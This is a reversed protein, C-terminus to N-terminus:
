EKYINEAKQQKTPGLYKDLWGLSEKILENGPIFHDTEYLVLKKDKSPTGLLDFMPKVSADYNYHMDYKGNLMLTPIKNRVVFNKQSLEPVETNPGLMGHLCSILAKVREEIAPMASAWLGGWSAAFIAIKNTDIDARTELYDVSRKFDIMFNNFGALTNSTKTEVDKERELYGYFVIYMLARGDKLFFDLGGGPNKMFNEGSRSSFWDIGPFIVVTQYPPEANKPLWLYIVMRKSDYVTNFSIKELTCDKFSNDTREIRADFPSKEYKFQNQLIKFAEDSITEDAYFSHTSSNDFIIPEFCYAPIKEKEIYKVCRFGNKESRDLTNVLNIMRYQYFPDNWAGGFTAHSVSNGNFCWERVNGAMDYTGFANMGKYFGVKAPGKGSFNSKTMLYSDFYELGRAQGWHHITPLEKGAFEAYAAAEYWSIGSVPYDEEGNPYDGAQWTSPGPRGTKDTFMAIAEDWALTKNDKEITHKWYRKDQYGGAAIFKKYEANTVEFKDLYYNGTSDNGIIKKFIMEFPLSGTPNLSNFNLLIATAPVMGTPVTGKKHLKRYFNSVTSHVAIITDYGEKVMIYKCVTLTPLKVSDIPTIGMFRWNETTDNYSKFYVNAGPPDSYVSQYTSLVSDLNQFEKNKPIYKAAKQLTYFADFNNGDIRYQEATPLIKSIAKNIQIHRNLFWGGTATLVLAIVLVFYTSIKKKKGNKHNNKRKQFGNHNGASNHNRIEGPAYGFYEHFCKNFYTPSGFGVRYSIEAATLEENQLLEKAKNLRIERIFQSASQNTIANLKRNLNSHSMGANNALEEPGFSENSLNAEVLTTLKQILANPVM